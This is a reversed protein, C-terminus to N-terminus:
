IGTNNQAVQGNTSNIRFTRIKEAVIENEEVSEIWVLHCNRGGRKCTEFCLHQILFPSIM